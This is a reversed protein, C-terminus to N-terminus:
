NKTSLQDVTIEVIRNEEVATKSFPPNGTGVRFVQISSKDIGKAIFLNKLLDAMHTTAKEGETSVPKGFGHVKILLQSQPFSKLTEACESVLHESESTLVISKTSTKIMEKRQIVVTFGDDSTKSLLGIKVFAYILKLKAEMLKLKAQLAVFDSGKQLALNKISDKLHENETSINEITKIKEAFDKRVAAVLENLTEIKGTLKEKEAKM